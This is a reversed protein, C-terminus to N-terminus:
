KKTAVETPPHLAWYFDMCLDYLEAPIKRQLKMVAEKQTARSAIDYCCLKVLTMSHSISPDNLNPISILHM